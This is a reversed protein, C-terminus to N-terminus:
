KPLSNKLKSRIQTTTNVLVGEKFTFATVASLPLGKEELVEVLKTYDRFYGFGRSADGFYGQSEIPWLIDPNKYVEDPIYIRGHLFTALTKGFGNQFPLTRVKESLGYFSSDSEIFIVNQDEKLDNKSIQALISKRVSGTKGLDISQNFTIVGYTFLLTILAVFYNRKKSRIIYASLYSVGIGVGIVGFYLYRPPILSFKNYTVFYFPLGSLGIFCLTILWPKCGKHKYFVLFFLAILLILLGFGFIIGMGKTEAFSGVRFVDNSQLIIGSIFRSLNLLIDQPLISQLLTRLPLSFLNFLSTEQKIVTFDALPHTRIFWYNWIIFFVSPVLSALSHFTRKLSKTQLFVLLPYFVVLFMSTGKSLLSLLLLAGSIYLRSGKGEDIWKLLHILSAMAFLASLHYGFSAVAWSTAQFHLPAIIFFSAAIIAALRNKTLILCVKSLFYANLLFLIMSIYFYALYELHFVSFMIFAFLSTIPVYQGPQPIIFFSIKELFTSASASYYSSFLQWEDQVFYASLLPFYILTLIFGHWLVYRKQFFEKIM